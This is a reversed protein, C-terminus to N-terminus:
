SALGNRPPKGLVDRLDVPTRPTRDLNPRGEIGKLVANRAM